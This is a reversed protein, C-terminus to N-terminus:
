PLRTLARFDISPLTHTETGVIAGRADIWYYNSGSEVQIQRGTAPDIVDEVGLTANSRRRSLEDNSRQRSWYTDSSVKSIAASTEAVIRSTEMTTQQQRRAWDPNIAISAVIREMVQQALAAKERAAVYGLLHEVHWNGGPMSAARTRLTGAFYYGAMPQGNEQCTFSADGSRLELSMGAAAFRRYVGNVVNDIDPRSRNETFVLNACGKAPRLAVYQRAFEAGPLYRQVLFVVGYGPSYPSGERIGAMALMQDPEVFPPMNRDGFTIRVQRDPSTIDLASRVDVSAVRFLGGEVTWGSPVQATFAGELPDRWQVFPLAGPVDKAPAGAARFSELIGTFAAEQGCYAASPAATIFLYGATGKASAAWTFSAVAARDGSSGAFRITADGVVLPERWAYSGFGASAALRRLVAGASARQLGAPLFVPWVVVQQRAPGDIAVRGSKRDAAAKWGPPLSVTFGNRDKHTTWDPPAACSEAAIVTWLIAAAAVPLRSNRM